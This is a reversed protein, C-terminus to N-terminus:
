DFGDAFIVARPRFGAIIPATVNGVRRNDRQEAIGTPLGTYNVDPNSFHAVRPCNGACEGPYSMVTRFANDVYHGFAWPFLAQAPPVGNAPDHQMGMNHGHEHAYVLDAVACSRMTIQVANGAFGGDLRDMIFGAGCVNISNEVWLSALDAGVEDRMAIGAPDLRLWELDRVEVEDRPFPRIGALSFRATMDSNAFALNATDVAAHIEAEVNALSGMAALVQPSYVVLVDIPEDVGAPTAPATKPASRAPYRLLADQDLGGGCGPFAQTDLEILASGGDPLPAIEYRGQPTQVLGALVGRHMTLSIAHEPSTDLRGQWTWGERRREFATRTASFPTGFVEFVLRRQARASWDTAMSVRQARQAAPQVRSADVAEAVRWPSAELALAPAVMLVFALAFSRM